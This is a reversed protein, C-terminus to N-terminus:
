ERWDTFDEPNVDEKQRVDDLYFTDGIRQLKWYEVFTSTKRKGEMITQTQSNITYDIMSGEIYLWCSDQSDDRYDQIGVVASRRLKINDLVNRENRLEMWTLRMKWQEYLHETLYPKLDEVKANTWADQVHYYIDEVRQKILKENWIADTDELWHLLAASQKAKKKVRRRYALMPMAPILVLLGGIAITSFMSGIPDNYGHGYYHDSNTSGSSSGGSSSGGGGGSGGGGARAHASLPLLLPLIILYVLCKKKMADGKIHENYLFFVLYCIIFVL